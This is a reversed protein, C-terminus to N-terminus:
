LIGSIFVFKYDGEPSVTTIDETQFGTTSAMFYNQNYSHKNILEITDGTDVDLLYGYCTLLTALEVAFLDHGGTCFSCCESALWDFSVIIALKSLGVPAKSVIYPGHAQGFSPGTLM